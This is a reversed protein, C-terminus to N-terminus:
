ILLKDIQDFDVEVSIDKGDKDKITVPKKDFPRVIFVSTM